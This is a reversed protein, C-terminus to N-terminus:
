GIAVWGLTSDGGIAGLQKMFLVSGAAGAQDMYFQTQLGDVLGEPSGTGVRVGLDSVAQMWLITVLEQKGDKTVIATNANPPIIVSM